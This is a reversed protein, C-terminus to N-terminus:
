FYSNFFDCQYFKLFQYTTSNSEPALNLPLPAPDRITGGGGGPYAGVGACIAANCPCGTFFLSFFVRVFIFFNSKDINQVTLKLDWLSNKKNIIRYSM